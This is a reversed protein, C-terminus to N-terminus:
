GETREEEYEDETDEEPSDGAEDEEAEGEEAEGEEADGLDTAKGRSAARRDIMREKLDRIQREAKHVVRDVAAYMEEDRAQALIRKGRATPMIVEVVFWGSERVLRVDAQRLRDSLRELHGIKETVYARLADTVDLHRGTITIEM